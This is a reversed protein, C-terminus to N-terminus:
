SFQFIFVFGVVPLLLFLIMDCLCRCEHETYCQARHLFISTAQSKTLRHHTDPSACVLSFYWLMPVISDLSFVSSMSSSVFWGCLSLSRIVGSMFALFSIEHLSHSLASIGPTPPCLLSSLSFVPWHSGHCNCAPILVRNHPKVACFVIINVM